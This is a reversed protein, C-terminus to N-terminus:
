TRCELIESKYKILFLFSNLNLLDTENVTPLLHINNVKEVM